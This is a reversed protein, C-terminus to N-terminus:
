NNTSNSTQGTCRQGRGEANFKRPELVSICKMTLLYCYYYYNSIISRDVVVVLETFTVIYCYSLTQSRSRSASTFHEAKLWIFMIIYLCFYFIYLIPLSILCFYFFELIPITYSWLPLRYLIVIFFLLLLFTWATASSLDVHIVGFAILIVIFEECEVSSLGGYPLVDFVVAVLALVISHFSGLCFKFPPNTRVIM